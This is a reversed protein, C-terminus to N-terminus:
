KGIRQFCLKCIFVILVWGKKPQGTDRPASLYIVYIYIFRYGKNIPPPEIIGMMLTLPSPSSLLQIDVSRNNHLWYMVSTMYVIVAKMYWSYDTLWRPLCNTFLVLLYTFILNLACSANRSYGEDPVSLALINSLWIIYLKLILLVLPGLCSLLILM